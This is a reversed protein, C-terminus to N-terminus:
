SRPAATKLDFSAIARRYKERNELIYKDKTVLLMQNVDIPSFEHGLHTGHTQLLDLMFSRTRPTQALRHAEIFPCGRTGPESRRCSAIPHGRRERARGGRRFAHRRRGSPKQAARRHTRWHRYANTWSRGIGAQVKPMTSEGFLLSGRAVAVWAMPCEKDGVPRARGGRCLLGREFARQLAHRKTGINPRMRRPHAHPSREHALRPIM